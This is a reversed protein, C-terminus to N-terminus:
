FPVTSPHMLLPSCSRPNTHLDLPGHKSVETVAGGGGGGVVTQDTTHKAESGNGFPSPSLCTHSNDVMTIVM